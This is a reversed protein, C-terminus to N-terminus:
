DDPEFWDPKFMMIAMVVPFMLAAGLRRIWGRLKTGVKKRKTAQAMREFQLVAM